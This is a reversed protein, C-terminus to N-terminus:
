GRGLGRGLSAICCNGTSEAAAKCRTGLGVIPPAQHTFCLLVVGQITISFSMTNVQAKILLKAAQDLDQKQRRKIRILAQLLLRRFQLRAVVAAAAAATGDSAAQAKHQKMSLEQPMFCFLASFVFCTCFVAYSFCLV